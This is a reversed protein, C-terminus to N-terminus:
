CSRHTCNLLPAPQVGSRPTGAENGTLLFEVTGTLVIIHSEETAIFLPNAIAVQSKFGRCSPFFLEPRHNGHRGHLQLTELKVKVPLGLSWRKSGCCMLIM